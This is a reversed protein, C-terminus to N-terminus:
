PNYGALNRQAHSERPLLVPTPQWKRRGVWPDFGCKKCRRCQCSCEKGRAGGPFDKSHFHFESLETQTKTVGLVTARRHERNM